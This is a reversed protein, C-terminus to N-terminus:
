PRDGGTALPMRVTMRTGQGPTSVTELSGGLHRLRERISFLGFGGAVAGSSSSIRASPGPMGVGDDGVEVELRDGVRGLRVRVRSARAHRNVNSLLEQVARFVFMRHDDPLPPASGDDDLECAIGYRAECRELLWELAAGLGLQHLVPPSLDFMLAKAGTLASQIHRQVENLADAVERSVAGAKLSSLKMMSLALTQGIGDHLDAALQRRERQEAASLELAMSRLQGEYASVERATRSREFAVSLTSGLLDRLRADTARPSPASTRGDFRAFGCAAGGLLIPVVVADGEGAASAPTSALDRLADHPLRPPLPAPPVGHSAPTTGEHTKVLHEGDGDLVYAAYRGCRLFEAITRLSEEVATEILEPAVALLGTALRSVLGDVAVRERLAEEARKRADIDQVIHVYTPLGGSSRYAAPYVASSRWSGATEDFLEREVIVPRGAAEELPCGAFAASTGHVLMPCHQGVIRDPALGLADETTRNAYVIRHHADVLVVYFPLADLIAEALAGGEAQAAAPERSACACAPPPGPPEGKAPCRADRRHRSHM